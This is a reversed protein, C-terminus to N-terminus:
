GDSSYTARLTEDEAVSVTTVRAASGLGRQVRELIFRALNEGSPVLKGDAFEPVDLNINAHDFRDKVESKLVRDLLGLDVVFGTTEDITGRVTVDCVYSHGHFNPRACLGFVEANRADDWDPRRYRHAAAFTM